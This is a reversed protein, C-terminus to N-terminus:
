PARAIAFFALAKERDRIKDPPLAINAYTITYVRGRRLVKLMPHTGTVVARDGLSPVPKTSDSVVDWYADDYDRVPEVKILITTNSDTTTILCEPSQFQSLATNTVTDHTASLVEAPTLLSCPNATIMQAHLAAPVFLLILSRM